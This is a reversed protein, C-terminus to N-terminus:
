RPEAPTPTKPAREALRDALATIAAARVAPAPEPELAIAALREISDITPFMALWACGLARLGGDRAPEVLWSGIDVLSPEAGLWGIGHDLLAAIQDRPDAREFRAVADLVRYRLSPPIAAMVGIV